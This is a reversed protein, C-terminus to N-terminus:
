RGIEACLSLVTEINRIMYLLSYHVIGQPLKLRETPTDASPSVTGNRQTGM